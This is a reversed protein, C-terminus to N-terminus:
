ILRGIQYILFSVVWALSTTYLISFLAWWWSGSERRIAAIVAICPLYILVFALFGLAVPATFIPQGALVGNEHRDRRLQESLAAESQESEDDEIGHLVSMTSVVIEKAVVGSVLSVGIKWDFGLPRIAPEITHGIRELYSNERTPYYGLAWILMSGILILGGMKRLYQSGKHWTHKWTNRRSPVRYPPLEMVFPHDVGDGLFRKLVLSTLIAMVIGFLYLGFLVFSAYEAFFAGVILIYVPLRASCSMFPVILITLLRNNRDEIIRCAMVAPVNCGFGMIMPVFSKGHLGIKHMLRDMIFAARAMYGTDELISIFMFLLLINPLFIIVAGVGGIMGDVVLDRLPGDSMNSSVFDSLVGVGMDIWEMPVGGVTFTIYFMLWVIALFIPFGWIRHTLVDDIRQSNLFRTRNVKLTENLAGSIYGYRSDAMVQDIRERYEVEIETRLQQAYERLDDSVIKTLDKDGEILSKALYRRPLNPYLDNYGDEVRSKLRELRHEIFLGFNSEIHTHPPDNEFKDVIINLIKDLGFGSRAITPVFPIELMRSMQAHDFRHGLAEFEDYMNLAVVIHQAMDMLQTTLYLNRELLTADVVNIVFDYNYGMLEDYVVQEEPSYTSLSYTGPLDTINIKYGKYDITTKKLDVTVGAYNGVHEDSGSISNFLTTKGSNPNGVLAVDITRRGGRAQQVGFDSSSQTTFLDRSASETASGDGVLEVEIMQAESRRLSVSYGMLEYEIPDRLPANKVVTVKRGKIFGMETLRKSYEGSSHIKVITAVNGDTLESLRKM